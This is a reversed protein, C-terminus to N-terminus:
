SYRGFINLKVLEPSFDGSSNTICTLIWMIDEVVKARGTQLLQINSETLGNYIIDDNKEDKQNLWLVLPCMYRHVIDACISEKSNTSTAANLLKRLRVLIKIQLELLVVGHVETTSRILSDIAEEEERKIGKM